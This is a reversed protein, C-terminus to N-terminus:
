PQVEFGQISINNLSYAQRSKGTAAIYQVINNYIDFRANEYEKDAAHIALEANLLDLVSRTGLKYQEQYLERTQVTSNQRALLVQMQQQKNEISERTMVIQDQVELYVANVNAKAAQEAFSASRTRASTAGGQFFNSSAELMISHDVDNDSNTLNGHLSKSISGKLSLTPYRSLTTQKKEYKAIDVQANALILKPIQNFLPENYLESAAVLQEPINWDMGDSKFGLLTNLRQQYQDLLDQETLLSSQASQLYSQAQVPDAQSSIGANARLNAIALIRQIGDIQQKAITINKRYRLINIIASSTQQAIDDINVLVNAQEAILKAKQTDVSSKIKGFDFVMQTATLSLVQEDKQSSTLDGTSIGGSIQPYYQSKALDINANQAALTAIKQSLTPHRLLATKIADYFNLHTIPVYQPSTPSISSLKDTTNPPMVKLPQSNIISQDVQFNSLDQLQVTKFNADSKPSFLDITGQKVKTYFNTKQEANSAHADLISFIIIM